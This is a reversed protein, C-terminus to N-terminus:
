AAQVPSFSMAFVRHLSVVMGYFLVQHWCLCWGCPLMKESSHLTELKCPVHAALLLSAPFVSSFSDLPHRSMQPITTPDTHLGISVM